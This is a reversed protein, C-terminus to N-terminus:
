FHCAEYTLICCVIYWLGLNKLDKIDGPLLVHVIEGNIKTKSESDPQVVVYTGRRVWLLKQFKSPLSVLDLHDLASEIQFLGGGKTEIVKAICQDQSIQPLERLAKQSISRKGM